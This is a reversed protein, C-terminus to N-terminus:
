KTDRSSPIREPLLGTPKFLLVLLLAAGIMMERVSAAQVASIGPLMEAMFRTLEVFVIVGYAGLVAGAPRGPGGATVALFIYITLIPAFHDPSIYSQYHVYLAGSLTALATALVFAAIKFRSVAKGAFPVLEPDERIAKLTRGYPSKDLRRMALFVIAVVFSMLLLYFNNFQQSSLQQKLPGPISSLGEAGNTLWREKLAVLRLVEAIGLTVIALYDDRLRSTCVAVVWGTVVGVAVAVAIGVVIPAGALTTIGSAYAGLAFFGTLGLNVMGATGWSLNLSMALLAYTGGVTLIFLVYSLM